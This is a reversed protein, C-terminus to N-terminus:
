KCAPKDAEGDCFAALVDEPKTVSGVVVNHEDSGTFDKASLLWEARSGCDTVTRTQLAGEQADTANFGVAALAKMAAHCPASVVVVSPTAGTSAKSSSGCSSVAAVVALVFLCRSMAVAVTCSRRSALVNGFSTALVFLHRRQVEGNCRRSPWESEPISQVGHERQLQRLDREPLQARARCDCPGRNGTRCNCAAVNRGTGYASSDDTRVDAEAEAEGNDDDQHCNYRFCETAVESRVKRIFRLGCDRAACGCFGRRTLAGVM